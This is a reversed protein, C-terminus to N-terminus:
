GLLASGRITGDKDRILSGNAQYPFVAQAIGWVAVPYLGCCVVALVLTSVLAGRIEAFLTKM